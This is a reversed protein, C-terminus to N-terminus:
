EDAVLEEGGGPREPGHLPLTFFMTTGEGLQSEAWIQGGHSEVITRAIPLGLGSGVVRDGLGSRVRFFREFLRNLHEPAIGIGQDAVSVTVAGERVEGRVVILGGDPSYKIANDILNRLVQGIRNADADIIPFDPPFDALLRHRHSRRSIDHVVSQALRPLMVPQPELKLLGADIISSELLDHIIEELVDCEEDVIQLFERQAEIGFNVDEMLLATSYGKISTLPTRMEHALTSILEAKLRNAEELTQVALLEDRLRANEVALAVLEALAKLFPLDEAQFAETQSRNELVLAGVTTEAAILPVCVASMPEGMGTTAQDFLGQNGPTMGARVTEVSEPSPYLGPQGTQLAAGSMAEGPALRLRKLPALKYGLATVPALREISPDYLLIVGTEAAHLTATLRFLFRPLLSDLRQETALATAIEFIASLREDQEAPPSPPAIPPPM